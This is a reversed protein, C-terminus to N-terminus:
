TPTPARGARGRCTACQGCGGDPCLLAAAFGYAAALGGRGPPGRFLYAHVPNAAAARLAAVAEDQGVVGAFLDVVPRDAGRSVRDARPPDGSAAACPPWSRHRDSTRTRAGTSSSGAADPDAEAQALFGDRVRRRVGAWASSGTPPAVAPRRRAAGVGRGRARRCSRCTPRWGDAAWAVLTPWSPRDLGRGYGQYALTSGSFRDTVVWRGAALAPEVVEAVHEARDAAM